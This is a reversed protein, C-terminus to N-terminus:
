SLSTPQGHTRKKTEKKKTKNEVVDGLSASRNSKLNAKQMATQQWAAVCKAHKIAVLAAERNTVIVPDDGWGLIETEERTKELVADHHNRNHHNGPDPPLQFVGRQEAKRYAGQVEELAKEIKDMETKM